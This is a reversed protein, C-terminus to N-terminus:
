KLTFVVDQIGGDKNALTVQTTGVKLPKLGPNFKAGDTKGQVFSPITPDAITATYSDVALSGTNLDVTSNLPVTVTTGQIDGTNVVIPAVVPSSACASLGIIASLAIAAVTLVRISRLSKM